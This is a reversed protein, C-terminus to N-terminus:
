RVLWSKGVGSVGHILISKAVPINLQSYAGSNEFSSRITDALSTIYIDKQEAPTLSDCSRPQQFSYETSQGAKSSVGEVEIIVCTISNGCVNWEARDGRKLVRGYLRRQILHKISPTVLAKTHIEIEIRVAFLNQETDSIRQYGM